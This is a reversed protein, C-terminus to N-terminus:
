PESSAEGAILSRIAELLEAQSHVELKRYVSKLHNRVTNPSIYLAKAISPVRRGDALQVVVELERETLEALAAHSVPVSVRSAASLSLSIARLEVAVRDLTSCVDHSARDDGTEATEATQITALDVLIAFSAIDEWGERVFRHPIVLAPFTTGDKRRLITVSARLDGEDVRKRQSEFREHMESAIVSQAMRGRIALAGEGPYGLWTRLRENSGFIAGRRDLVLVGCQMDNVLQFIAGFREDGIEEPDIPGGHDNEFDVREGM